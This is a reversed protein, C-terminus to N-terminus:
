DGRINRLSVHSQIGFPSPIEAPQIDSWIYLQVGRVHNTWNAISVTDLPSDFDDGYFTFLRFDASPDTAPTQAPWTSGSPANVIKEAIVQMEDWDSLTTAAATAGYWGLYTPSGSATQYNYKGAGDVEDLYVVIRKNPRDLLIRALEPKGDKKGDIRADILTGDSTAHIMPVDNSSISQAPRLWRVMQSLVRRGENQADYGDQSQRNMWLGIQMLGVIGGLVIALVSVVVTAEIASYGRQTLINKRLSIM